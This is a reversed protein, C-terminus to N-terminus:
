QVPRGGEPLKVPEREEAPKGSKELESISRLEAIRGLLIQDRETNKGRTKDLYEELLAVARDTQGAIQARLLGEDYKWQLKSADLESAKALADAAEEIREAVGQLATALRAHNEANEPERELLYQYARAADASKGKGRLTDGLRRYLDADASADPAKVAETLYYIADAQRMKEDALLLGLEAECRPSPPIKNACKRLERIAGVPTNEEALTRATEITKALEDDALQDGSRPPPPEKSPNRFPSKKHASAGKEAAAALSRSKDLKQPASQQPAGQCAVSSLALLVAATAAPM